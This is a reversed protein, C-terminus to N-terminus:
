AEDSEVSSTECPAAEIYEITGNRMEEAIQEFDDNWKPIQDGVLAILDDWLERLFSVPEGAPLRELLGKLIRQAYENTALERRRNALKELRERLRDIVTQIPAGPKTPKSLKQLEKLADIQRRHRDNAAIRKLKEIPDFEADSIIPSKVKGAHVSCIQTDAPAM